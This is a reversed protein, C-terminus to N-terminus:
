VKIGLVQSEKADYIGVHLISHSVKIAKAAKEAEELTEFSDKTQRDVQLWYRHLLPKKQGMPLLVDDDKRPMAIKAMLEIEKFKRSARCEDVIDASRGITDTLNPPFSVV